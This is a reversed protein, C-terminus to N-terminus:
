PERGQRIGISGIAEAREPWTGATRVCSACRMESKPCRGPNGPRSPHALRNQSGTVQGEPTPLSRDRHVGPTRITRHSQNGPPPSFRRGHQNRFIGILSCEGWGSDGGGWGVGGEGSVQWVGGGRRGRCCRWLGWGRRGRRWRMWRRIGWSCATASRCGLLGAARVLGDPAPKPRPVDDVGVVIDVVGRLGDRELVDEVRHRYKTTVVGVRFGSEHLTRLVRAAGPLFSTSAVMVEDAKTVFHEFFEEERSRWEEGALIRLATPLDLGITRRIADAPAPPLGLRGLAHNMCVVVGESSDALTFDFDFLVARASAIAPHLDAGEPLRPGPRSNM